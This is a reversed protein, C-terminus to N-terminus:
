TPHKLLSQLMSTTRPEVLEGHPHHHSAFGGWPNDVWDAAGKFCCGREEHHAQRVM